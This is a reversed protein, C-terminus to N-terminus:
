HEGRTRFQWALSARLALTEAETRSHTPQRSRHEDPLRLTDHKCGNALM